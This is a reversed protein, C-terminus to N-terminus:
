VKKEGRCLTCVLIMRKDAFSLSFSTSASMPMFVIESWEQTDHVKHSSSSLFDSLCHDNFLVRSNESTRCGSILPSM